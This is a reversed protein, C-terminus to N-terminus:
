PRGLEWARARVEPSTVDFVKAATALDVGRTAELLVEAALEVGGIRELEESILGALAPDRQGGTGTVRPGVYAAGHPEDIPGAGRFPGGRSM